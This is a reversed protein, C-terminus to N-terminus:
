RAQECRAVRPVSGNTTAKLLDDIAKEIGTDQPLDDSFALRVPEMFDGQRIFTYDSWSKGRKV